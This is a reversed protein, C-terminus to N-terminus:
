LGGKEHLCCKLKPCHGLLLKLHELINGLSLGMSLLLLLMTLKTIYHYYNTVSVTTMIIIFTITVSITIFTSIVLNPNLLSIYTIRNM